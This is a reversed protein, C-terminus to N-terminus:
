GNQRSRLAFADAYLNEAAAVLENQAKEIDRLRIPGLQALTDRLVKAQRPSLSAYIHSRLNESAGRLAIVLKPEGVQELVKELEEPQLRVFDEFVVAGSKGAGSFPMNEREMASMIRERERGGMCAFIKGVRSEADNEKANEINEAVAKGITGALEADAPRSKLMASVTEAAFAGPLLSLVGASLKPEIGLLVVAAVQPYENKLYRALLEPELANLRRWSDAEPHRRCKNLVSVVEAEDAFAAPSPALPLVPKLPENKGFDPEFRCKQGRSFFRVLVILALFLVLLLAFLQLADAAQSGAFSKIQQFWVYGRTSFLFDKVMFYCSGTSSLLVLCFVFGCAFAVVACAFATCVASKDLKTNNM